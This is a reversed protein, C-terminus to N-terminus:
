RIQKTHSANITKLEHLHHRYWNVGTFEKNIEMLQPDKELLELVDNMSFKPNAPYLEEYIRKIFEYDVDYDITWRHSMSYNLGSEWSVNGIRFEDPSEWIYPTTHELDMTNTANKWAEELANMSMVEVDNGDPYTAPHLNSVYDFGDQNSLFYGVVKDIISPDILPCDSPIKLVISAGFEKAAKFHRDLLNKEDGRFVDWGKTIALNAIADDKTNTSTAVVVRGKLKSNMVREIMRALLPEGLIPLLTKGPLRSSGVRAQIITVIETKM